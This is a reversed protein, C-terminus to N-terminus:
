KTLGQNNLKSKANVLPLLFIAIVGIASISITQLTHVILAFSKSDIESIGWLSLTSIVILHWAGVGGQVPIIASISSFIFTIFGIKIGLDRTFDFAYFNMYFALFYGIWIAISYIFFLKKQSMSKITKIGLFVGILFQSMKNNNKKVLWIIFFLLLITSVIGVIYTIPSHIINNFISTIKTNNNIFINLERTFTISMLIILMLLMIIDTLRDTILTGLLKKICVKEYKSMSWCRWVEGMRPIVLNVAYSGLVTLVSNKVTTNNNVLPRLLLVWRLGRIFHAIFSWFLGCLLIPINVQNKLISLTKNFDVNHYLFWFIGIGLLLPIIVTRFHYLLDKDKKQHM